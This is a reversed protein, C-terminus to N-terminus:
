GNLKVEQHVIHQVGEFQRNMLVSSLFNPKVIRQSIDALPVWEFILKLSEGEMGYFTPKQLLPSADPLHSLFYLGIEHFYEGQHIFFNEVVYLLREVIVTTNLEEHMERALAVQATEMAEVRGGPLAWFEDHEARHLLVHHNHLIVGAARYNFLCNGQKFVLM